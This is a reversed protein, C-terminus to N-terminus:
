QRRKRLLGVGGLALLALTCPEPIYHYGIDVMGIDFLRDTRTTYQSLDSTEALYSGIDV